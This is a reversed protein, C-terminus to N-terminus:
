QRIKDPDVMVVRYVISEQFKRMDHTLLEYILLDFPHASQLEAWPIQTLGSVIPRYFMWNSDIENRAKKRIQNESPRRQSLRFM